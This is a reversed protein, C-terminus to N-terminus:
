QPKVVRPQWHAHYANNSQGSPTARRREVKAVARSGQSGGETGDGHMHLEQEDTRESLRAVDFPDRAVGGRAHLGARGPLLLQEQGGRAAGLPGCSRTASTHATLCAGHSHFHRTLLCTVPEPAYSLSELVRIDRTEGRM